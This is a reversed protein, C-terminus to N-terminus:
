SSRSAKSRNSAHRRSSGLLSLARFFFAMSPQKGAGCQPAEEHTETGFPMTGLLFFFFFAFSSASFDPSLRGRSDGENPAPPAGAILRSGFGGSGPMSTTLSYTLCSHSLVTAKRDRLGDEVLKVENKRAVGFAPPRLGAGGVTEAFVEPLTSSASRQPMRKPRSNSENSASSGSVAEKEEPWSGLPGSRQCLFIASMKLTPPRPPM